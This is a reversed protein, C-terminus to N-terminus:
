MREIGAKGAMCAPVKSEAWTLIFRRSLTAPVGAGWRQELAIADANSGMGMAGLMAITLMQERMRPSLERPPMALVTEADHRMEAPVRRAAASYAALIPAIDPRAATQVPIWAPNIWVGELDEAPLYGITRSALDALNDTWLPMLLPTAPLQRTNGLLAQTAELADPAYKMLHTDVNGPTMSDALALATQQWLSFTSARVYPLNAARGVPKRCDLIDLAPMGGLLTSDILRARSDM